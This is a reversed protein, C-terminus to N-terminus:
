PEWGYLGSFPPPAALRDLCAADLAAPDGSEIFQAALKPMCGTGLLSHGQGNLVLHRANDLAAAVEDGYRPPTVPDYEGSLILVPLAGTLPQRFDEPRVGRPWLACQELLVEVLQSGLVTDEDGAELVLEPADDTCMVSNHMGSAMQGGLDRLLMRTIALLAEYDGEHARHVLLPLAAATLPSYAYMRMVAALHGYTPVEEQWEGSTPDRYRVPELGGAELRAALEDLLARPDGVSEECAATARCREFHTELADELNRAHESGLALGPPVVSDLVLSRVHGPYTKAYQQAVRTGYSVGVLNVQEAGVARRVYDLDFVAEGTSYFRLDAKEQLSEICELTFERLEEPTAEEVGALLAEEEIPCALPNSAGTGRQDLLLIHRSRNIDRFAPAVGPYTDRASQGPGGAIMFVPDPEAEGEVPIWALALEISRGAPDAPNEPVTVSTCQAETPRPLGVSTLVCPEFELEGLTRAAAPTPDSLAAAALAALGVAGLRRGERDPNM